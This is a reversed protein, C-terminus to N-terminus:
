RVVLKKSAVTQGDILQVIYLGPAVNLDLEVTSQRSVKVEQVQRGNVDLVRILQLKETGLLTIHGDTVPNPYASVSAALESAKTGLVTTRVYDRLWVLAPRETEDANVLYAGQATRWHGIRYGWLTVGKIGPNTWFLPFVRQYEALQVADDLGDIDLETIYVPLGTSAFLNLNTTLTAATATRTSFAHGQVGIADILNREKLLNIITLYLQARAPENEVSYENMMLRTRPFAERALEFSKIVWDWGTTGNGGLANIYNGTGPGSPPQHTPENVVELIDINPYRQAVLSFWERIEALQEAPSLSEIWQPQQSGWVLVHMRFPYGNAQALAYAADLETWNMVNRTGEVSGWKGANEPVVQNWYANFNPLQSTSYVSGLFKPKGTALPPGTPTAPPQPMTTSGQQGNDLNNVTFYLGSAGFVVKDIDFGDERGGIQFTQTLNGATVTFSVPAEGGNFKSLNIWKWVNNQAAPGAGEVVQTASTYGVSALNNATIWDSDTTPSKAGFSSGYYFSDDNAGGPGVRFRGYLDYTGPGPFTVTYTAVKSANGPYQTAAFDTASTIYTVTAATLTNWDSGLTGSETQQVVPTNQARAGAGFLLLSLLLLAPRQKKM